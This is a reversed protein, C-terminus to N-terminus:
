LDCSPNNNLVDCSLPMPAAQVPQGDRSIIKVPSRKPGNGVSSDESAKLGAACLMFSLFLKKM